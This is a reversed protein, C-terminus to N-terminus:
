QVIHEFHGGRQLRKTFSLVAKNISNKSLEDWVSQLVDKLEDISKPKPQFTHYREPM